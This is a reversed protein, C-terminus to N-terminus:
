REILLSEAWSATIIRSTKRLRVRYAREDTLHGCTPAFDGLLTERGFTMGGGLAGTEEFHRVPVVVCPMYTVGLKQLAYARHFGNRLFYRGEFQAVHMLPCGMGLYIGAVRDHSPSGLEFIGSRIVRLNLSESHIIVSGESRSVQPSFSESETPLCIPALADPSHIDGTFGGGLGSARPTEIHPQFALLPAIEVLAFRLDDFIEALEEFGESARVQDIYPAMSDPLERVDPRGARPIPGGLRRRADAWLDGLASVSSDEVFCREELYRSAEEREMFGLLSLGDVPM